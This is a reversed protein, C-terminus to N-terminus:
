SISRSTRSGGSGGRSTCTSAPKRRSGTSGCSPSNMSGVDIVNRADPAHARALRVVERYYVMHQREAWYERQWDNSRARLWRVAGATGPLRKIAGKISTLLAM